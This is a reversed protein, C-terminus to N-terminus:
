VLSKFQTCGQRCRMPDGIKEMKATCVAFVSVKSFLRWRSSVKAELALNACPNRELIEPVPCRGCLKEQWPESGPNREILRCEKTPSRRHSDEYYFKCNTSVNESWM